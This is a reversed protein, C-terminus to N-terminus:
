ELHEVKRCRVRLWVGLRHVTTWRLFVYGSPTVIHRGDRARPAAGANLDGCAQSVTPVCCEQAYPESKSMLNPCPTTNQPGLELRSVHSRLRLGPALVRAVGALVRVGFTVEGLGKYASGLMSRHRLVMRLCSRTHESKHINCRGLV